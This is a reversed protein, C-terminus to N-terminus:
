HGLFNDGTELSLSDTNSVHEMEFISLKKLATVSCNRKLPKEYKRQGNVWITLNVQENKQRQHNLKERRCGTYRFSLLLENAM